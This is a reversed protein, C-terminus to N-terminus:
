PFCRNKGLKQLPLIHLSIRRIDPWFHHIDARGSPLWFRNSRRIKVLFRDRDAKIKEIKGINQEKNEIRGVNNSKNELINVMRLM